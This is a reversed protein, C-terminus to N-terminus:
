WQITVFPLVRSTQLVQAALLYLYCRSSYEESEVKCRLLAEHKKWGIVRHRPGVCHVKFRSLGGGPTSHM